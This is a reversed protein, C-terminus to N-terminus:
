PQVEKSQMADLGALMVEDIIDCKKVTERWEGDVFRGGHWERKRKRYLANLRRCLKDDRGSINYSM